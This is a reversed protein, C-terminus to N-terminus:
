VVQDPWQVLVISSLRWFRCAIDTWAMRYVKALMFLGPVRLCKDLVFPDVDEIERIVRPQTRCVSWPNLLTLGAFARAM